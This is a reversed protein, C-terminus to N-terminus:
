NHSHFKIILKGLPVFGKGLSGTKENRTLKILFPSIIFECFKCGDKKEEFNFISVKDFCLDNKKTKKKANM